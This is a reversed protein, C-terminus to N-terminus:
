SAVVEFLSRHRRHLERYDMHLAIEGLEELHMKKYSTDVVRWAWIGAEGREEVAQQWSYYSDSAVRHNMEDGEWEELSAYYDSEDFCEFTATGVIKYGRAEAAERTLTNPTGSRGDEGTPAELLLLPVGRAWKPLSYLRTETTKEGRAIMNGWPAQLELAFRPETTSTSGPWQVFPGEGYLSRAAGTRGGCGIRPFCPFLASAVGRQYAIYNAQRGPILSNLQREEMLPVSIWRFLLTLLLPGLAAPTLRGWNEFEFEGRGLLYLGVWFSLEGLYNPHRCLSFLGTTLVRGREHLRRHAVFRDLQLDAVTECAIAVIVIVLAGRWFLLPTDEACRIAPFLALSGSFMFVSQGLFVTFLSAWWFHKAGIDRRMATYRWDEHGIGGRQVFNFTLRAGWVAVLAVVASVRNSHRMDDPLDLVLATALAIPYLSWIFDVPWVKGLALSCLWLAVNTALLLGGAREWGEYVNM